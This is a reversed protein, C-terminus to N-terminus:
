EVSWREGDPLLLCELLGFDLSLSLSDFGAEPSSFLELASLDVSELASRQVADALYRILISINCFAERYLLRKKM